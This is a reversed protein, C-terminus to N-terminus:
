KDLKEYIESDWEHFIEFLVDRDVKYVFSAIIKGKLIIHYKM